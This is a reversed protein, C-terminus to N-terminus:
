AHFPKGAEFLLRVDATSKNGTALQYHPMDVFTKWDGGWELNAVKAKIATGLDAYAKREAANAGTYYKGAADFLGIDWAVGFNHNSRGGRANTVPSRNTLIAGVM